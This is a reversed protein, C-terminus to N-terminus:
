KLTLLTWKATVTSTAPSSPKASLNALTHVAQRQQAASHVWTSEAATPSDKLASRVQRIAPTLARVPSMTWRGENADWRGAQSKLHYDHNNPDAFLPNTEINGIGYKHWEAPLNSYNVAFDTTPVVGAFVKPTNYFICNEVFAGKGPQRGPLDLDFYIAERSVDAVTNNIFTLFAGDKVQAVHHANYFINRIMVYHKGSGASLCNGEGSAKNYEDKIFKMFVNGEIHADCELDLADDGGGLFINNRIYPISEPPTTTSDFDIADNHGKNTGFVNNEIIFWGDAPVGSGWLHESRNDTSPPENPGFIDVFNCDRVILSSNVTRIRFRDCHDLTVYEVTLRSTQVDIMCDPSRGYEVVAHSIRNDQMTHDFSLGQWWTSGASAYRTFRIPAEPTGEAALRGHIVIKGAPDAKVTVGSEITLTVNVPVTLLGTVRYPSNAATWTTDEHLTGAVPTDARTSQAPIGM